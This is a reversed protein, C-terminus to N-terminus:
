DSPGRDDGPAEGPGAGHCPLIAALRPPSGRRAAFVISHATQGQNCVHHDPHDDGRAVVVVGVEREDGPDDRCDHGRRQPREDQESGAKVEVEALELELAQSSGPRTRM